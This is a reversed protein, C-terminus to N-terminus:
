GPIATDLKKRGGMEKIKSWLQGCAAEIDNGRSKRIIVTFGKSMLHEQFNYLEQSDPERYPLSAVRNYPILNIKSPIGDLLTAMRKADKRSHNVGGLVIYEFTIRRRKPMEFKRCADMLQALPYRRNIPMLSSRLQDTTAHLSVALGVNVMKGLRVIEPVLGCTSVTIRRNSFNLGLPNTLIKIASVVNGLNALPEGMGMFVINRPYLNPEIQEMVSLVQGVIESPLLNRLFGMTGTKCFSCGMACGVQSSVCLTTHGNGPILVTEIVMGDLLRFAWKRTDDQKSAAMGAVELRYIFGELAFRARLAKPLVTIDDFRSFGPKWLWQFLQRARFAAEGWSKILQELEELTKSRYDIV